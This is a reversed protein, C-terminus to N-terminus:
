QETNEAEAAYFYALICTKKSGYIGTYLCFSSKTRIRSYLPWLFGTNNCIKRMTGWNGTCRNRWIMMIHLIWLFYYKHTQVKVCLVRCNGKNKIKLNEKERCHKQFRVSFFKRTHRRGVTEMSVHSWYRIHKMICVPLDNHKRESIKHILAHCAMHKLSFCYYRFNLM